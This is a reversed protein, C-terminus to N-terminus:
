SFLMVIVIKSKEEEVWINFPISGTVLEYALIGVAWIDNKFDYGNGLINEPSLYLLTGISSKRMGIPDYVAWGFDCIKV